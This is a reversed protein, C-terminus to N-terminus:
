CESVLDWHCCMVKLCENWKKRSMEKRRSSEDPEQRGPTTSSRMRSVHRARRPGTRVVPLSPLHLTKSLFREMGSASLLSISVHLCPCSKRLFHIKFFDMGHMHHIALLSSTSLSEKAQCVVAFATPALGLTGRFENPQVIRIHPIFLGLIHSISSRRPTSQIHHSGFHM